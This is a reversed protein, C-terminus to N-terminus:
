QTIPNTSPTMRTEVGASMRSKEGCIPRPAAMPKQASPGVMPARAALRTAVCVSPVEARPLVLEDDRPEHAHAHHDDREEEQALQRRLQAVLEHHGLAFPREDLRPGHADVHSFAVACGIREM